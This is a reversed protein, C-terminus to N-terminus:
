CQYVVTYWLEVTNGRGNNHYEVDVPTVKVECIDYGNVEAWTNISAEIEDPTCLQAIARDYSRTGRDNDKAGKAWNSVAYKFVAIRKM